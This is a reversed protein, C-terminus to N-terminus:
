TESRLLAFDFHEMCYASGVLQRQACGQWLCIADSTSDGSPPEIDTRLGQSQLWHRLTALIERQKLRPIPDSGGSSWASLDLPALLMDYESAGAMEWPILLGSDRERYEIEGGRGTTKMQFSPATM